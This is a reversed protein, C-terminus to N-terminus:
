QTTSPVTSASVTNIGTLENHELAPSYFPTNQPLSTSVTISPMGPLSIPITVVRSQPVNFQVPPSIATSQATAFDKPTEVAHTTDNSATVNTIFTPLPPTTPM